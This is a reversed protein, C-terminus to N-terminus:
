SCATTKRNFISTYLLCDGDLGFVEALVPSTDHNGPIVCYPISTENLQSKIWLYTEKIGTKHCLDGAVIMFDYKKEKIKQITQVFQLRTDLGIPLEGPADIHIDTILCIKM